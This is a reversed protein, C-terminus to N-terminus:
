GMNVRLEADGAPCLRNGFGHPQSDDVDASGTRTIPVHPGSPTGTGADNAAGAPCRIVLRRRAPMPPGEARGTPAALACPRNLKAEKASNPAPPVASSAKPLSRGPDGYPGCAAPKHGKAAAPGAREQSPGSSGLHALMASWDEPTPPACRRTARATASPTASRPVAHASRNDLAALPM